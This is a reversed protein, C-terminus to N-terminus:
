PHTRMFDIYGARYWQYLLRGMESSLDVLPRLCRRDALHLLQRFAKPPVQCCEGNIFIHGGHCLMQTKLALCLGDRKARAMFSDFTLPRHPREFVIHPKPETLYQGAFQAIDRRRWQIGEIMHQMQRLMAPGICSPHRQPELDPDQYMGTLKLRDQLFELFRTGLEQASPARFGISCTLSDDVAVGDHAYNPPLYLMDGPRMLYERQPRFRRLIKLPANELLSLDRQSSIQWRRTGALQLLFVDYSDFHPGVGGGPPAYSVMIDDFRAYPIFAFELLLEQARPVVHNVGQVLLTWGTERPRAFDREAFPGHEVRWRGRSRTVRRSQVDARAALEFLESRGLWGGYQPLAQRALLPKKQWHRRLFEARTLGGLIRTTM